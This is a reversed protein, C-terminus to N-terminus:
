KSRDFIVPCFDPDDLHSTYYDTSGDVPRSRETRLHLALARRPQQSTNAGSGHLTLRHHFSVAGAPLLLPVETVEADAPIGPIQAAGLCPGGSFVAPPSQALAGWTHSRPVVCMPGSEMAIDSLAVWATFVESDESWCHWYWRDQHFGIGGSEGSQAPKFLMQVAWLQIRQAGAIDAAMRGIAPHTCVTRLVPDSLHVQDIKLLATPGSVPSRFPAIGTAYDGKIVADMRACAQTILDAPLLPPSVCYGDRLFDDRTSTRSTQLIAQSM